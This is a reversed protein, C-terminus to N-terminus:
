GKGEWKIEETGAQHLREILQGTHHQIHRINYLHLEFKNVPLWYFGSKDAAGSELVLGDLSDIISEAYTMLDDKSYINEILGPSKTRSLPGLNKFDNVHKEWPIFKDEAGSLYFATYFLAHYVIRWYPSKYSADDWLQDPCKIIADRLM